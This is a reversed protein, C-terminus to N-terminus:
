HLLNKLLVLAGLYLSAGILCLIVAFWDPPTILIQLLKM